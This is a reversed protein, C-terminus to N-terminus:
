QPDTAEARAPILAALAFAAAPDHMLTHATRLAALFEKKGRFEASWIAVGRTHLQHRETRDIVEGTEIHTYDYRHIQDDVIISLRGSRYDRYGNNVNLYLGPHQGAPVWNTTWLPGKHHPHATYGLPHLGWNNGASTLVTNLTSPNATNLDTIGRRRLERSVSADMSNLYVFRQPIHPARSAVPRATPRTADDSM